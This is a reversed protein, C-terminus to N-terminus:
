LDNLVGRDYVYMEENLKMKFITMVEIYKRDFYLMVEITKLHYYLMDEIFQWYFHKRKYWLLNFAYQQSFRTLWVVVDNTRASSNCRQLVSYSAPLEQPHIIATLLIAQSHHNFIFYFPETRYPATIM